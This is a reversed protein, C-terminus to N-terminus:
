EPLVIFLLWDGNEPAVLWHETQEEQGPLVDEGSHTVDARVVANELALMEITEEDIDFFEQEIYASLEEELQAEDLDERVVELDFSEIEIDVEEGEEGPDDIDGLEQFFDVLPSRSHFMETVVSLVADEDMGEAAEEDFEYWSSVIAEPSSTDVLGIQLDDPDDDGDDDVGTDDDVGNDDPDDEVASDDNQDDGDSDDDDGLCGALGIAATTGTVALFRRRKM